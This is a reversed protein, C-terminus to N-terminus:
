RAQWLYADDMQARVAAVAQSAYKEKPAEICGSLAPATSHLLVDPNAPVRAGRGGGLPLGCVERRESARTRGVANGVGGAACLRQLQQVLQPGWNEGQRLYAMAEDCVDGRDFKQFANCVDLKHL